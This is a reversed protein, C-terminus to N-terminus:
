VRDWALGAGRNRRRPKPEDTIRVPNGQKNCRYEALPWDKECYCHKCLLGDETEEFVHTPHIKHPM